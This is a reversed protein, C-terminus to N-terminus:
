SQRCNLNEDTERPRRPMALLASISLVLWVGRRRSDFLKM